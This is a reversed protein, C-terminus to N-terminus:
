LIVPETRWPVFMRDNEVAASCSANLDSPPQDNPPHYTSNLAVFEALLQQFVQSETACLDVHETPDAQLDFLCGGCPSDNGCATADGINGSANPSFLGYWSALYSGGKPGVLLKWRGSILAGHIGLGAGQHPSPCQPCPDYISHDLVIGTRPSANASGVLWDWLNVGDVAPLGPAPDAAPNLGALTAFTAYWDVIHILGRATTGRQSAPVLGGSVFAPVRVGGEFNASKGGRLPYNSGAVSPPSGNDTMWVILTNEYLGAAKLAATLNAVASDISSVMGYFTRQLPLTINAPTNLYLDSYEEPVEIPEHTDHFAYYMFLPSDGHRATHNAIDRVAVEAFRGGTWEGVKDPAPASNIYADRIEMSGPKPCTKGLGTHAALSFHDEGGSLFGDSYNFGRGLPTYQPCYMGLHWKGVHYSVYGADALRAPLMRYGLPTGDMISAPAFNSRTQPLKWPLRGTLFAGRTPSCFRYTYSNPLKIGEAALADIAPTLLLPNVYGPANFGLDDVLLMILNPLPQAARQKLATTSCKALAAFTLLRVFLTSMSYLGGGRGEWHFYPKTLSTTPLAAQLKVIALLAFGAM